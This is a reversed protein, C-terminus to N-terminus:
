ANTPRKTEDFIADIFQRHVDDITEQLLEKEEPTLNRLSSGTDKFKGSKVTQQDIGVKDYLEKLKVFQM